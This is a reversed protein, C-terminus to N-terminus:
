PLAELAWLGRRLHFWGAQADPQLFDYVCEWSGTDTGVGSSGSDLFWLLCYRDM